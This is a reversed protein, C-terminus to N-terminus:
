RMVIWDNEYTCKGNLYKDIVLKIEKGKVKCNPGFFVNEIVENAPLNYFLVIDDRKVEFDIEKPVNHPFIGYSELSLGEYIIRWEQEFANEERKIFYGDLYFKEIAKQIDEDCKDMNELWFAEARNQMDGESLYEVKKFEFGENEAIKNLTKSSIGIAAGMGNDGYLRWMALRNESGSFSLTLMVQNFREYAKEKDLFAFYALSLKEYASIDMKEYRNLEKLAKRLMDLAFTGEAPDNSKTIDTLRIYGSTFISKLNKLNTYHFLMIDQM